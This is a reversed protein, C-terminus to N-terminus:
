SREVFRRMRARLVAMGQATSTSVLDVMNSRADSSHTTAMSSGGSADECGAYGAKVVDKGDVTPINAVGVGIGVGGLRAGAPRPPGRPSKM